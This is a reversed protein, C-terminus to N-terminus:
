VNSAQRWRPLARLMAVVKKLDAETRPLGHRANCRCALEIADDRAGPWVKASLKTFGEREAASVRHFGDVLLLEGDPTEVVDIPHLDVGDRMLERYRVVTASDTDVRPQIAEDRVLQDIAVLEPTPIRSRDIM